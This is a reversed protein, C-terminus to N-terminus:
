LRGSRLFRIHTYEPKGTQKLPISAAYFIVHDDTALLYVGSDTDPASCEQQMIRVLKLFAEEETTWAHKAEDYALGETFPISSEGAACGALMTAVVVLM